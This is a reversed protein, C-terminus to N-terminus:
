NKYMKTKTIVTTLPVTYVLGLCKIQAINFTLDQAFRKIILIFDNNVIWCFVVIHLKYTYFKNM